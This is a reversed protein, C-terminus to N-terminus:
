PSGPLGVRTPPNSCTKPSLAWPGSPLQGIVSLINSDWFGGPGPVETFRHSAGDMLAPYNVTDCRIM